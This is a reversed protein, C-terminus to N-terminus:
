KELDNSLDKANLNKKNRYIINRPPKPTYSSTFTTIIIEHNDNLGTTIAVTKQFGRRRNTLIVDLSFERPQNLVHKPM